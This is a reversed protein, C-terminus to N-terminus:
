IHKRLLINVDSKDQLPVEESQLDMGAKVGVRGHQWACRKFSCIGAAGGLCPLHHSTHLAQYPQPNLPRFTPHNARSDHASRSPSRSCVRDADCRLDHHRRPVCNVHM